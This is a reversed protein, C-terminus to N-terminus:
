YTRFSRSMVSSQAFAAFQRVLQPSVLLLTLLYIVAGAVISVVLRVEADANSLVTMRLLEVGAYLTVTGIAAPLNPKLQASVSLIGIVAVGIISTVLLVLGRVAWVVAATESSIVLGAALLGLSVAFTVFSVKVNMAPHGLATLATNSYQRPTILIASVALIQVTAAAAQWKAGFMVPMLDPAVAALGAYLPMLVIATFCTAEYFVAAFQSRDHSRKALLPLALQSAASSLTNRFEEVIRFGLSFRGLAASDLYFGSLVVLLRGNALLLIQAFMNPLGFHLLERLAHRSCRWGPVNRPDFLLVATSLLTSAVHMVVLAWAGGGAFAVGVGLAVGALRGIITRRALPAFALNRRLTASIVASVGAVPIAIPAFRLLPVIEPKGYWSAILSACLVLLLAAVSSGILTTVFATSYYREELEKRQVLADHFLMEFPMTVLQVMMVVLSGTGIDQVSLLRALAILAVISFGTQGFTDVISWLLSRSAQDRHIGM